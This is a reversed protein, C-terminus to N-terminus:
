RLQGRKRLPGAPGAPGAGSGGVGGVMKFAVRVSRAYLFLVFRGVLRRRLRPRATPSYGKLTPQNPSGLDTPQQCVIEHPDRAGNYSTIRALLATGLVAMAPKKTCMTVHFVGVVRDEVRPESFTIFMFRQHERM